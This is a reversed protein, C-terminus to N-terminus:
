RRFVKQDMLIAGVPYGEGVHELDLDDLVEGVEEEGRV